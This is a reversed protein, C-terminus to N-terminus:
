ERRGFKSETRAIRRKRDVHCRECFGVTLGVRYLYVCLKCAGAPLEQRAQSKSIGKPHIGYWSM